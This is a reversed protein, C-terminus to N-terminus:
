FFIKNNFMCSKNTLLYDTIEVSFSLSSHCFGFVVFYSFTQCYYESREQIKVREFLFLTMGKIYILYFKFFFTSWHSLVQITLLPLFCFTNMKLFMEDKEFSRNELNSGPCLFM